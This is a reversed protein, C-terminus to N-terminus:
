ISGRKMQQLENVLKSRILGVHNTIDKPFTFEKYVENPFEIFIEYMALHQNLKMYADISDFNAILHNRTRLIKAMELNNPVVVKQRVQNWVEAATELEIPNRPFTPPGLKSFCSENIKLMTFLPDYFEALQESLLSIQHLLLQSATQRRTQLFIGWLVVANPIILVIAAGILPWFGQQYWEVQIPQM